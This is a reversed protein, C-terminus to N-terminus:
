SLFEPKKKGFRLNTYAPTYPPISVSVSWDGVSMFYKHNFLNRKISYIPGLHRGQTQGFNAKYNIFPPNNPKKTVTVISGTETGVLYKRGADSVYELSIAGVTKADEGELEKIAIKSTPEKFNNIDWWCVYGDTSCTVFENGGKSSM